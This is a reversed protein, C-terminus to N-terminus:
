AEKLLKEWAETVEEVFSEYIEEQRKKPLIDIHAKSWQPIVIILPQASSDNNTLAIAIRENKVM